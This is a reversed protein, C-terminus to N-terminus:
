LLQLKGTVVILYAKKTTCAGFGCFVSTGNNLEDALIYIHFTTKPKGECEWYIGREEYESRNVNNISLTDNFIVSTAVGGGIEIVCIFTVNSGNLAVTTKPHQTIDLPIVIFYYWM